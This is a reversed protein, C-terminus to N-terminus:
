VDIILLWWIFGMKWPVQFDTMVPETGFFKDAPNLYVSDLLMDIIFSVFGTSVPM